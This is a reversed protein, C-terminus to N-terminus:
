FSPLAFVLVVIRPARKLTSDLLLGSAMVSDLCFDVASLFAPHGQLCRHLCQYSRDM